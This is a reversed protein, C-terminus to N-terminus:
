SVKGHGLLFYEPLRIELMLSTIQVKSFGTMSHVKQDTFSVLSILGRSIVDVFGLYPSRIRKLKNSANIYVMMSLQLLELENPDELVLFMVKLVMQQFSVLDHEDMRDICSKGHRRLHLAYDRRNRRFVGLRLHDAMCCFTFFTLLHLLNLVNLV